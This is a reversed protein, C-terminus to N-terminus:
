NTMDVVAVKTDSSTLFRKWSGRFYTVVEEDDTGPYRKRVGEIYGGLFGRAQRLGVARAYVYTLALASVLDMGICYRVVGRSRLGEAGTIQTSRHRHLGKADGVVAFSLGRNAAKIEPV